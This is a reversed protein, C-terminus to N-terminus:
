LSYISSYWLVPVLFAGIGSSREVKELMGMQIDGKAGLLVEIKTDANM